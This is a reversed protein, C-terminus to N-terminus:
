SIGIDEFIRPLSKTIDDTLIKDNWFVAYPTYPWPVNQPRVIDERDMDEKKRPVDVYLIQYPYGCNKAWKLKEAINSIVAPCQHSYYITLRQTQPKADEKIAFKPSEVCEELPLVYLRYSGFADCEQFGHSTLLFISPLDPREGEQRTVAVLGLRGKIRCDAICERMLVKAAKPNEVRFSQILMMQPAEVPYWADEAPMYEMFNEGEATRRYIVGDQMHNKLWERKQKAAAEDCGCLPTSDYNRFNITITEM